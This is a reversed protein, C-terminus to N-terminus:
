NDLENLRRSLAAEDEEYIHAYTNIVTDPTDGIRKAIANPFLGLHILLAVHSHRLDHIRIPAISSASCLRRLKLRFLRHSITFLPQDDVPVDLTKIYAQIVDYLRQHIPVKRLSNVSKTSPQVKYGKGSLYIMTKNVIIFDPQIDKPTLAALEGWRIGSWFLVKLAAAFQLDDASALLKRFEEVTIYNMEKRLVTIKEAKRCPNSRLSYNTEAFSFISSLTTKYLKVSRRAGKKLEENQWESVMLPTIANAPIHGLFPLIHNEIISKRSQYTLPKWVAQKLELFKDCLASLPIDPSSTHNSLFDSEWRVAERKLTFGSKKKQKRVGNWDTYYFKCYWKGTKADKYIPM